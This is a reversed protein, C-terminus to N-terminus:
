VAAPSTRLGPRLTHWDFDGRFRSPGWWRECGMEVTVAGIRTPSSSPEFEVCYSHGIMLSAGALPSQPDLGREGVAPVTITHALISGNTTSAKALTGALRRSVCRTRSCPAGHGPALEAPEDASTLVVRARFASGSRSPSGFGVDDGVARGHSSARGDCQHTPHSVGDPTVAQLMVDARGGVTGRCRMRGVFSPGTAHIRAGLDPHQGCSNGRADIRRGARLLLLHGTRPRSFLQPVCAM